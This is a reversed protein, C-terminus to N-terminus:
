AVGNPKHCTNKAIHIITLPKLEDAIEEAVSQPAGMRTLTRVIKGPEFEETRGDWKVVM